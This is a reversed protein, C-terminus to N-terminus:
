KQFEKKLAILHLTARAADGGKNKENVAARKWAQESTEVTLIGNGM